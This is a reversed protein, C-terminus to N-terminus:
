THCQQPTTGQSPEYLDGSVAAGTVWVGGGAAPDPCWQAPPEGSLGESCAWWEVALPAGLGLLEELRWTGPPPTPPTKPVDFCTRHPLPRPLLPSRDKRSCPRQFHDRRVMNGHRNDLGRHFYTLPLLTFALTLTNLEDATLVPPAQSPAAPPADSSSMENGKGGTARDRKGPTVYGHEVEPLAQLWLPM